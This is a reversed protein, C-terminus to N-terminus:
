GAGADSPAPTAGDAGGDIPAADAGSETAAGDAPAGDGSEMAAGDAAGDLASADAGPAPPVENAGPPRLPPCVAIVPVGSQQTATCVTVYTAAEVQSATLPTSAPTCVSADSGAPACGLNPPLAARTYDALDYAYISIAYTLSGADSAPLNEFVGNAFCDFINSFVPAGIVAGADDVEPRGADDLTAHSLVAAYRFVTGPGGDLPVTTGCGIGAVLDASRIEIGTIPTFTSTASSSNCGLAGAAAAVLGTFVLRSALNV